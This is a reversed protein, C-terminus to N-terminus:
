REFMDLAKDPDVNNGKFGLAEFGKVMLKNDGKKFWGSDRDLTELPDTMQIIFDLINEITSYAATPTRWSRLMGRGDPFILGTAPNGLGAYAGLEQNMRLVQYLVYQYKKKEEDDMDEMMAKLLMAIFFTSILLTQERLTRRVNAKQLSTLNSKHFPSIEKLLELPQTFLVNYYTRYMGETEAGLEQDLSYAKWRKKFAPAVHKRYMLLLRGIAYRSLVPADFSNYVGHLRKNIAHLRNQVDYPVLGNFSVKGKLIIGQKLKLKNAKQDWEYADFLSIEKGSSDKVKTSNLLALMSQVAAAHEGMWQGAFWLDTNFLRLFQKKTIKNGYKDRYEGQMPDYLEILQGIKTRAVGASADKLFDLKMYDYYKYKAWALDKDSFFEKAASEILMQGNAQLSNAVSLIPNGGIQIISGWQMLTNVLKGANFTKGAITFEEKEQTMGLIQMDIFAELLAASNNGNHKKVYKNWGQINLKKAMKHEVKLGLSNTRVPPNAEIQQLASIAVPLNDSNFKYREAMQSYQLVSNVLNLSVYDAEIPFSFFVPPSTRKNDKDHLHEDEAATTFATEKIHKFLKGPNEIAFEYNTKPISPLIFKNQRTEPVLEQSKFYQSLLLKFLESKATTGNVLDYFAQSKYKPAPQLFEFDTYFEGTLPNFSEMSNRWFEFQKKTWVGSKVLAEKEAILENRGKVITVGNVKISEKSLPETNQKKWNEIIHRKETESKGELSEFMERKSQEFEGYNYPSVFAMVERFEKEKNDWIKTRQYMGRYMIANNESHGVEKKFKSFTTDFKKALDISKIRIEEYGRKFLKAINALVPNSSSIMPTVLFDVFSIDSNSGKSLEVEFGEITVKRELEEKVKALKKRNSKGLLSEKQKPTYKNYQEELEKIHKELNAKSTSSVEEALTEALVKSINTNYANLMKDFADIISKIKIYTENSDIIEGERELSIYLQKINNIIPTYTDLFEKYEALERAVAMKNLETKNTSLTSIFEDFYNKVTKYGNEKDEVLFNYVTDIFSKAASLSEYEKIGEELFSKLKYYEARKSSKGELKRMRDSIVLVLQETISQNEEKTNAGEKSTKLIESFKSLVGLDTLEPEVNVDSIFEPNTADPFVQVPLVGIPESVFKFGLYEALGKYISLQAEHQQKRSAFDKSTKAYTNKKGTVTEYEKYSGNEYGVPYISSKIDIIKIRGDPFVIVIDATGIVGREKNHLPQQTFFLCDNYKAILGQVSDYVKELAEDTVLPTPYKNKFERLAGEKDYGILGLCLLEDVQNGWQRNKEFKETQEPNNEGYFSPDSEKKYESASKMSVGNLTYTHDAQNLIVGKRAYLLKEATEKQLLTAEKGTREELMALQDGYYSSEKASNFLFPLEGRPFVDEQRQIYQSKELLDTARMLGEALLSKSDVKFGLIDLIKDWIDAFFSKRKPNESPISNLDRQLDKDYFLAAIFEHSNALVRDYKNGYLSKLKDKVYNFYEEFQQSKVDNSELTQFLQAHLLEEALIDQINSKDKFIKEANLYITNNYPDYFANFDNNGTIAYGELSNILKINVSNNTFKSKILRLTDNMMGKSELKSFLTQVNTNLGKKFLDNFSHTKVIIGYKGDKTETFTFNIGNNRLIQFARDFLSKSIKNKNAAKERNIENIINSVENNSQINQDSSVKSYQIESNNDMNPNIPVVKSTILSRPYKRAVEKLTAVKLNIEAQSTYEKEKLKNVKEVRWGDNPNTEQWLKVQNEAKKIDDFIDTTNGLDDKAVYGVDSSPIYRNNKNYNDLVSEISTTNERTQTPQKGIQKINEIIKYYREPNIFDSFHKNGESTAEEYTNYTGIIYPEGSGPDYATVKFSIDKKNTTNIVPKELKGYKDDLIKNINDILKKTSYDINDDYEIRFNNTTLEIGLENHVHSLNDIIDALNPSIENINRLAPAKTFSVGLLESKKDKSVKEHADWVSGSYVDTPAAWKIHESKPYIVFRVRDGTGEIHKLRKDIPKTFASITFEGGAKKNDEIHQILNKLLLDLELNSYAGISSYFGQGRSYVEEPDYQINNEKKWQEIIEKSQEYEKNKEIFNQINSIGDGYIIRYKYVPDEYKLIKLYEEAEIEDFFEEVVESTSINQIKYSEKKDKLRIESLDVEVNADALGRIEQNVEELTDYKNGLPTSYEVKYGPLIIKNNGYAMIEALDNLTTTIPLEDIKIGDQRLLQKVFDSIQKWLEKLKSILTADKKTDLKDAAMLGLLTVIAEEQQEELTYRVKPNLEELRKLAEDKTKFTLGKREFNLNPLEKGTEVIDYYTQGWEESEHITYIRIEKYQYDRKVQEFVEKGRGTELEKLLSQYLTKFENNNIFDDAQRETDFAKIDSISLNYKDGVPKVIWIGRENKTKEWKINNSKIARIIPHALIEHFPTDPTMYAENLVSTMGQNYGKWDANPNNEFRVKGGIRHALKASLDKLATISRHEKTVQEITKAKEETTLKQFQNNQAFTGSKINSSISDNRLQTLIFEPIIGNNQNWISWFANEGLRDIVLKNDPHSLNPCEM